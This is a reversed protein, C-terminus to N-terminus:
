PSNNILQSDDARRYLHRRNEQRDHLRSQMSPLAANPADRAKLMPRGCSLNILRASILPGPYVPSLTRPPGWPASGGLCAGM